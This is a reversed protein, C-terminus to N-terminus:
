LVPCSQGRWLGDPSTSGQRCGTATPMLSKAEVTKTGQFGAGQTPAVSERYTSDRSLNVVGMIIPEVDTDFERDGIAFHNVPDDFVASNSNFLGALEDLSLVM